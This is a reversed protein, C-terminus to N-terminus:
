DVAANRVEHLLGDSRSLIEGLYSNEMRQTIFARVDDPFASMKCSGANGQKFPVQFRSTVLLKVGLTPLEQVLETQAAVDGVHYEDLADIVLYVLDPQQIAQMLSPRLLQYPPLREVSDHNLVLVRLLENPVTFKPDKGLVQRLLALACLQLTQPRQAAASQHFIYLISAKPCTQRLDDIIISSMITKGAGAATAQILFLAKPPFM